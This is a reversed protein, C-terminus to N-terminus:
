ESVPDKPLSQGSFSLNLIDMSNNRQMQEMLFIGHNEEMMGEIKQLLKEVQGKVKKKNNFCHFKGGCEDVLRQLDEHDKHKLHEEITQDLDELEDASCQSVLQEKLEELKKKNLDPCDIVAVQKGNIQTQGECVEAEHKKKQTQVTFKREGLITNGSSSKGSANRGMLLIRILPDDPSSSSMVSSEPLTELRIVMKLSRVVSFDYECDANVEPASCGVTCEEVTSGGASEEDSEPSSCDEGAVDVDSPNDRLIRDM